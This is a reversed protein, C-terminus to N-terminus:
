LQDVALPFMIKAEIVLAYDLRTDTLFRRVFQRDSFRKNEATIVGFKSNEVTQSMMLLPRQIQNFYIFHTTTQKEDFTVSM